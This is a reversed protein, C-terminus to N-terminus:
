LTELHTLTQLELIFDIFSPKSFDKVDSIKLEIRGESDLSEILHEIKCQKFLARIIKETEHNSFINLVFSFEIGGFPYTYCKIALEQLAILEDKTYDRNPRNIFTYSSDDKGTFIVGNINIELNCKPVPKICNEPLFKHLKKLSNGYLTLTRIVAINDL